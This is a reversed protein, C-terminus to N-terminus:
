ILTTESISTLPPTYAITASFLAPDNHHSWPLCVGSFPRSRSLKALFQQALLVFSKRHDVCLFTMSLRPMNVLLAHNTLLRVQGKM